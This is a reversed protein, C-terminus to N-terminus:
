GNTNTKHLRSLASSANLEGKMGGLQEKIGEVIGRKVILEVFGINGFNQFSQCRLPYGYYTYM